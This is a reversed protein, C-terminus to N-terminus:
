QPEQDNNHAALSYGFNQRDWTSPQLFLPIPRDTTVSVVSLYSLTEATSWYSVTDLMTKEM